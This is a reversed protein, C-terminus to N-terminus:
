SAIRVAALDEVGGLLHETSVPGSGAGQPVDGGLGPEGRRGGVQEELVLVIQERRGEQTSAGLQDTGEGGLGGGALRGHVGKVRDDVRGDGEEAAM